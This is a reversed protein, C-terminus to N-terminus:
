RGRDEVIEMWQALKSKQVWHRVGPKSVVLIFEGGDARQQAAARRLQLAAEQCFFDVDDVKVVAKKPCHALLERLQDALASMREKPFTGELTLVGSDLGRKSQSPRSSGVGEPRELAGTSLNKHSKSRCRAPSFADRSSPTKQSPLTDPHDRRWFLSDGVRLPRVFGGPVESTESYGLVLVGGPLLANALKQLVWKRAQPSMYILVNRCFILHFRGPYEEDMLNHVQFRCHGKLLNNVQLRRRAGRTFFTKKDRETLTGKSTEEYLGKTAKGVAVRSLDTGLVFFELRPVRQLLSMALSYAEQGEACGASWIRIPSPGSLADLEALLHLMIDRIQKGHRFWGTEGVRLVEMLSRLEHPGRTPDSLMRLYRTPEELGLQDMRQLAKSELRWPSKRLNEMGSYDRVALDLQSLWRPVKRKRSPGSKPHPDKM